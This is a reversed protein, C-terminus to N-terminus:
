YQVFINEPLCDTQSQIVTNFIHRITQSVNLM